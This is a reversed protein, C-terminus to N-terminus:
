LVHKIKLVFPTEASFMLGPQYITLLMGAPLILPGSYVLIQLGSDCTISLTPQLLAPAWETGRFVLVSATM